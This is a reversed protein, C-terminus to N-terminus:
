EVEVQLKYEWKGRGGRKKVSKVVRVNGGRRLM